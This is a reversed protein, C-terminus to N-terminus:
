WGGKINCEYHRLAYVRPGAFSCGAASACGGCGLELVEGRGKLVELMGEVASSEVDFRAVLDDLSVRGHKKIYNRIDALIM